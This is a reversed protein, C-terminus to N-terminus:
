KTCRRSRCSRTTLATNLVCWMAVPSARVVSQTVEFALAPHANMLRALGASADPLRVADAARLQPKSSPLSAKHALGKLRQTMKPQVEVACVVGGRNSRGVLPAICCGQGVGVGAVVIDPEIGLTM